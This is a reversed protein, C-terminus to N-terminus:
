HPIPPADRIAQQIDADHQQDPTLETADGPRAITGTALSVGWVIAVFIALLTLCPHRQSWTGCQRRQAM